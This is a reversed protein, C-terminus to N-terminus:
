GASTTVPQAVAAAADVIGAGLRVDDGGDRATDFLVQEVEDADRGQSVLLAAVGSVYPAAMSTGDLEEYGDTGDPFITTSDRPVTSLIGVGPAVLTRLDGFNSFEAPEGGPGIAGVVIV